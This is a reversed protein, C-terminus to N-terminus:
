AVQLDKAYERVAPGFKFGVPNQDFENLAESETMNLVSRTGTALVEGKYRITIMTGTETPFVSATPFPRM